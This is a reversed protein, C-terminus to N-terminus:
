PSQQVTQQVSDVVWWSFSLFLTYVSYYLTAIHINKFELNERTRWITLVLSLVVATLIFNAFYKSFYILSFYNIVYLSLDIFVFVTMAIIIIGTTKQIKLIKLAKLFLIIPFTFLIIANITSDRPYIKLLKLFIIITLGAFVYGLIKFYTDNVTFAYQIFYFFLLAIPFLVVIDRFPFSLSGYIIVAWYSLSIIGLIKNFRFILLGALLPVFLLQTFYFGVMEDNLWYGATWLTWILLLLSFIIIKFVKM